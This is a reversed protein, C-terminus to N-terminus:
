QLWLASPWGGTDKPLSRARNHRTIEHQFGLGRMDAVDVFDAPSM